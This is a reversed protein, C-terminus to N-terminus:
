YSFVGKIEQGSELFLAYSDEEYYERLHELSIQYEYEDKILTYIKDCLERRLEELYETFDNLLSVLRHHHFDDAKLDSNDFEVYRTKKHSYDWSFSNKGIRYIPLDKFRLLHRFKNSGENEIIVELDPRSDDFCAGDGQGGGVSYHVKASPFGAKDLLITSEDIAYDDCFEIQGSSLKHNLVKEQAEISLEIFTYAKIDKM